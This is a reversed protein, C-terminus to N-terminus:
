TAVKARRQRRAKVPKHDNSSERETSIRELLLSAPEDGPDQPVLKGSFAADLVASRLRSSRVENAQVISELADIISLQVEVGAVIRAQEALPPVPVPFSRLTTKSVSALNTTQKGGRSFWHQGFTNGHWSLLRPDLMPHFLRARFVHNQHICPDLQGQWVWGRGLKDRDGGENLLVDGPLLRLREVDKSTARITAVEDLNLYGRQVNAVRLYPVEILGAATQRKSDKTIGGVVDALSDLSTWQWSQPLEPLGDPVFALPPRITRGSSELVAQRSRAAAEMLPEANGEAPDQPVLRGTVAAELVTARMRKLNQRVRELAAVGADLRSFQEEIAAVIREQEATPAITLRQAELSDRRLSPIATSSDLEKLGMSQLQYALYKPALGEPVLAFYSTDIPWCPESSLYTSGVNGKRGIVLVPGDVLASSHKGVKGASGYVPITGAGDRSREPLGKGYQIRLVSSVPVRGWGPPLGTM